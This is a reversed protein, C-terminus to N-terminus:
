EEKCDEVTAPQAMKVKPSTQETKQKKSDPEGQEKPDTTPPDPLRKALSEAETDTEQPLKADDDVPPFYKRCAMVGFTLM